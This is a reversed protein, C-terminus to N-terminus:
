GQKKTKKERKGKGAEIRIVFTHSHVPRVNVGRYNRHHKLQPKGESKVGTHTVTM